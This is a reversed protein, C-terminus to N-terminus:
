TRVVVRRDLREVVSVITEAEVGVCSAARGVVAELGAGLVGTVDQGSHMVYGAGAVEGDSGGAEETKRTTLVVKDDEAPWEDAAWPREDQGKLKLPFYEDLVDDGTWM